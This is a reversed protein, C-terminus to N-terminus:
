YEQRDTVLYEAPNVINKPKLGRLFRIVNEVAFKAPKGTALGSPGSVHPTGIFNSLEFFPNVTKLSEKGDRYWWVDTAYRFDPNTKLHEYLAAEDVLEGRAINVLIADKKMTALKDADIIRNTFKTLPLSIIVADGEALVRSLGKDGQFSRVGKRRIPKRSFAYINVRFGKGIRAVASGIGGYGLIGLTKEELITVEKGGLTRRLTWQDTKVANHFDVIRKAASLLLSWAYEAVEDSYAGANSCVVVKKDLQAFPIHNVGALINQILRLNSMRSLNEPTLFSPWFFVLLIDISPLLQNLAAEDVATSSFVGAFKSLAQISAPDVVDTAILLNPKPM